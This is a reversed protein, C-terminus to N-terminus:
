HDKAVDELHAQGAECSDLVPCFRCAGSPGLTPSRPESATLECIKAVADVTRKAATWLLDETVKESQPRGEELYYNVLLRPPTGLKLTELLAYFRLDDIHSRHPRGSKLDVLVKGAQHGRSFGLSLDTKGSFTFAGGCLEARVRSETVPRWERKLPPFTEMFTTVRDNAEALLEAREGESLSGLFDSISAGGNILRALAEDLLDLPPPIVRFGVMLEVAKHALTGRAAPVSWQFERSVDAVYHKECTHVLGLARKSVFLPPEQVLDKLPTLAEDLQERLEARLEPRFEPRDTSGLEALVQQQAPNLAPTETLTM